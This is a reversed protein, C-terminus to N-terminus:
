RPKPTRRTRPGPPHRDPPLDCYKKAPTGVPVLGWERARRNAERVNGGQRRACELCHPALRQQGSPDSVMELGEAKSPPIHDPIFEGSRTGPEKTGCTHCGYERGLETVQQREKPTLKSAEPSSAIPLQEIPPGQWGVPPITGTLNCDPCLQAKKDPHPFNPIM